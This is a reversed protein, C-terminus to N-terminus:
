GDKPKEGKVIKFKTLVGFVAVAIAQVVELRAWWSQGQKAKFADAAEQSDFGMLKGNITEIWPAPRGPYSQQKPENNM